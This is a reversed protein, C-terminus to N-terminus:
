KWKLNRGRAGKKTCKWKYWYPHKERYQKNYLEYETKHTHYYKKSAKRNIIGNCDNCHYHSHKMRSAIINKNVVLEVGCKTCYKKANTKKNRCKM